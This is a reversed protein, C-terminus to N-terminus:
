ACEISEDIAQEEQQTYFATVKPATQTDTSYQYGSVEVDLEPMSLDTAYNKYDGPNTDLQSYFTYQGTGKVAEYIKGNVKIFEETSKAALSRNSLTSYEGRFTPLAEPYNVYYNRKVLKTVPRENPVTEQKFNYKHLSMYDKMQQDMYPQMKLVSIPDSNILELGRETVRVNSYYNQYAKSNKQKEKIQASRFDSIYETSLYQANTVPNEISDMQSEVTPTPMTNELKTNFYVASIYMRELNEMDRPQTGNEILKTQAQVHNRIDQMVSEMNRPNNLVSRNLSGDQELATRYASEPLIQPNNLINLYLNNYMVDLSDNNRVAQYVNNGLPLLGNTVFLDYAKQKTNLYVLNEGRSQPQVKVVREKPTIDTSSYTDLTQALKDLNAESPNTLYDAVTNLMSLIEERSMDDYSEELSDLDIAIDSSDERIQKLIQKIEKPSSDWIDKTISELYAINNIVDNNEPVKVTEQLVERTYSTRQVMNGDQDLEMERVRDYSSFEPFMDQQGKLYDLNSDYLTDEYEARNKIGGLTDLAEKENIYPNDTISKGIINIGLQSTAMYAQDVPLDNYITHDTNRLKQILDDIDQQLETDSMINDIESSNYLGTSRLSERTPGLIGNPYFGQMLTSYLEESSDLSTGTLALKIDVVEQEELEAPTQQSNLFNIVEELGPERNIDFPTAPVINETESTTEDIIRVANKVGDFVLVIDGLYKNIAEETQFFGDALNRGIIGEKKEVGFKGEKLFDMADRNTALKYSAQVKLNNWADVDTQWLGQGDKKNQFEEVSRLNIFATYVRGKSLKQSEQDIQKQIDKYVTNSRTKLQLSKLEQINKEIENQAEASLPTESYRKALEKNTAFYTGYEKLGSSRRYSPGSRFETIDTKRSGHYVVLPEGNEDVVKSANQPDAEWDGFWDKFEKTRVYEWQAKNLNSPKGNPALLQEQQPKAIGFRQLKAWMGEAQPSLNTDSYLDLGNKISHEIVARYLRSGTGQGQQGNINSTIIRHGDKYPTTRIQGVVKGDEKLTYVREGGAYEMPTIEEVPASFGELQKRIKNKYEQLKPGYVEEQFSPTSAVAWLDTATQEDKTYNLAEQYLLSREGNYPSEVYEVGGQPNKIISCGVSM